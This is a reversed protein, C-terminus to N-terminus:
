RCWHIGAFCSLFPSRRLVGFPVVATASPPVVGFTWSPQIHSRVTGAVVVVIEVDDGGASGDKDMVLVFAADAIGVLSL